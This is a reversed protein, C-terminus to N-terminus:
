DQFHDYGKGQLQIAQNQQNYIIMGPTACTQGICSLPLGLQQGITIIKEHASVPATFCLEYDDGGSLVKSYIEQESASLQHAITAWQIEAGLSSAQLIHGLDAALGDSIDIASHAIDRLAIGLAMRPQPRNLAAIWAPPCPQSAQLASLAQAAHGLYGSHWIEDGLQAGNRKLAKGRPIIGMIQISINLPGRTTDGGIISVGYRQACEFLGTSFQALWKEQYEPLSISLTAWKAEAGMAAMDSINVAMSKWGIDSPAADAFFHTGSVLMDSSVALQYGDAVSILAADDGIGLDIDQCPRHFFKEIISFESM